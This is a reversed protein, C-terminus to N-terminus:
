QRSHSACYNSIKSFVSLINFYLTLDYPACQTLPVLKLKAFSLHYKISNIVSQEEVGCSVSDQDIKEVLICLEKINRFANGSTQAFASPSLAVFLACAQLRLGKSTRCWLNFFLSVRHIERRTNQETYRPACISCGPRSGAHIQPFNEGPIQSAQPM